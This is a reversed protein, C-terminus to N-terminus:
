EEFTLEDITREIQYALKKNGHDAAEIAKDRLETLLDEKAKAYDEESIEVPEDDALNKVKETVQTLSKDLDAVDKKTQNIKGGMMQAEIKNKLEIARKMMTTELEKLVESNSWIKQDNHDWKYSM